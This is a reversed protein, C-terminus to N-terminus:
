TWKGVFYLEILAREEDTLARNFMVIEALDGNLFALPGKAGDFSDAESGVGIFGFRAAGSGISEGGHATASAAEQGDVFIRKDPPAGAQFWACIVHWRGDTYSLPTILDHASASSSTTDWGVNGAGRDDKLAFQWYQNRDFSAIIQDNSSTSKALVFITIGSIEGAAQYSLNNIALYDNAGDFRLVPKGALANRLFLPKEADDSQLADNGSGSQDAWASVRGLTDHSIGADSRLWLQLGPLQDPPVGSPPGPVSPSVQIVPELVPLPVHPAQEMTILVVSAQYAVSLTYPIEMFVSWLKSLEDLNLPIPTFKVLEVENALDSNALFSVDAVTSQIAARALVPQSHLTRVTSGLLRQPELEVENGYFSLLYHLDLAAQPRAVLTGDHSRTPLDDNRLATNPTVQYLYINVGTNPVGSSPGDPRVTTVEAGPVDVSVAAQVARSLAATVTAIALFNSM